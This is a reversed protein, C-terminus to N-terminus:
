HGGPTVKVLVKKWQRGCIDVGQAQLARVAAIALDTRYAGSPTKHIVRFQRAIRATRQFSAPAMVGIGNPAPWILANVENVQWRQHGRGLAPSNRLVIDTAEELHDRCYAWGKLSAALLKKAIEQNRTDRIWGGRVFIGDELMATGAAEMPIINLDAPQYLRGTRRNATELVQALENYTMAAAADVKRQLFLGMDFPQHVITVDRPSAPDIGHKVLAAFLEFENGGHWVGVRKGRMGDISTIGSDRWTLETMGSRTFVQAISVLDVGRDRTALLSPLWDVGFEARGSAVVQEPVIHPGGPRLTVDLGAARYYGKAQAAYYGAFQAQTVWKLQLTVKVPAPEAPLRTVAGVLGAVTLSTLVIEVSQRAFPGM